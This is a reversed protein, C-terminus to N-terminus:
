SLKEWESYLGGPRLVYVPIEKLLKKIRKAGRVATSQSSYDKLEIRHQPLPGLIIKVTEGTVLIEPRLWHRGRM